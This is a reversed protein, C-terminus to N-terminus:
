LQKYHAPLSAKIMKVLCRDGSRPFDLVPPRALGNQYYNQQHDLFTEQNQPLLARITVQCADQEELSIDGHSHGM